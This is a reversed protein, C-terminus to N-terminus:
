SVKHARLAPNQFNWNEPFKHRSNKASIATSGISSYWTYSLLVANPTAYMLYDLVEWVLGGDSQTAKKIKLHVDIFKLKKERILWKEFISIIKPYNEM